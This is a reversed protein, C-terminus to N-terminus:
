AASSLLKMADRYTTIERGYDIPMARPLYRFVGRAKDDTVGEPLKVDGTLVLRVLAQYSNMTGLIEFGNVNVSAVELVKEGNMKDKAIDLEGEAARIGINAPKAGTKVAIAGMVTNYDGKKVYKVKNEDYGSERVFRRAQEETKLEEGYILVNTVNKADDMNKGFMPDELAIKETTAIAVPEHTDSVTPMAATNYVGTMERRRSAVMDSLGGLAKAEDSTISGRAVFRKLAEEFKEAALPKLIDIIARSIKERLAPSISHMIRVGEYISVLRGAAAAAKKDAVESRIKEAYSKLASIDLDELPIDIMIAPASYKGALRAADNENRVRFIRLGDRELQPRIARTM